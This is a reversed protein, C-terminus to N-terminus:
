RDSADNWEDVLASLGELVFTYYGVVGGLIAAGALASGLAGGVFVLPAREWHGAIISSGALGAGHGLAWISNYLAWFDDRRSFALALRAYHPPPRSKRLHHDAWRFSTARDCVRADLGLRIGAEAGRLGSRAAARWM